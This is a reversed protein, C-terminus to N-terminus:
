AELINQAIYQGERLGKPCAFLASAVHSTYPNLADQNQMLQLMPLFQLDPNKQFSIFLLGADVNGTRPDVSGTYSYARRHIQQGAQKALRVHADAPMQSVDVPDFENSKGYAAGSEKSRGFTDEQDTLSSRDWMELLMRVKRYALYSGGKMWDPEGDAAWVVEDYGAATQHLANATGDKFGFLNRPTKGATGSIFGEEMWNLAAMGTSLRTFNRIAHFAVQQDEACVQICVDGGSLAPNLNDRAMRPIDKLYLPAMATIGFRDKGGENFFSPGFGFTVTLRAAPLDLTEGTDSPPLLPNDGTQMTGGATSLDSFRTWDRFLRILSARDSVTIRFSALYMYTQQPTIIGAQHEGYMPVAEAKADLTHSSVGQSSGRGGFLGIGAAGIAIGSGAIASLKIFERRSISAKNSDEKSDKEKDM